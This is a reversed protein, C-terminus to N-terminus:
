EAKLTHAGVEFSYDEDSLCSNEDRVWASIGPQLASIFSLLDDPYQAVRPEKIRTAAFEILLSGMVWVIHSAADARLRQLLNQCRTM